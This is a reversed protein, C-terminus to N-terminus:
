VARVQVQKPKAAEPKPLHITLVGNKYDAEIRNADIAEHLQFVRHYDGTEYEELLSRASRKAPVARAHLTLDGREYHLDIDGPSVGPLDAFLVIEAPTEFIDVRPTFQTPQAVEARPAEGTSRTLTRETM